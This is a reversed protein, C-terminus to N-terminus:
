NSKFTTTGIVLFPRKETLAYKYLYVQIHGLHYFEAATLFFIVSVIVFIQCEVGIKVNDLHGSGSMLLNSAM